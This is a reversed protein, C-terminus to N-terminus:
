PISIDFYVKVILQKEDEECVLAIGYVQTMYYLMKLEFGFRSTAVLRNDLESLNSLFKFCSANSIYLALYSNDTGQYSIDIAQKAIFGDDEEHLLVFLLSELTANFLEKPVTDCAENLSNDLHIKLASPIQGKRPIVNHVLSYINRQTSALTRKTNTVARLKQIINNASSSLAMLDAASEEIDEKDLKSAGELIQAVSHIGNVANLLEHIFTSIFDSDIQTM